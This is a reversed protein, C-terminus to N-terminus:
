VVYLDRGEGWVMGRAGRGGASVVAGASARLPVVPPSVVGDWGLNGQSGITSNPGGVGAWNSLNFAM